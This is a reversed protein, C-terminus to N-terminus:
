NDSGFNSEMLFAMERSTTDAIAIIEAGTNNGSGGGIYVILGAALAKHIMGTLKAKAGDRDSIWSLYTFEKNLQQDSIMHTYANLSYGGEDGTIPWKRHLTNKLVRAYTDKPTEGLKTPSVQIVKFAGAVVQNKAILSQSYASFSQLAPNTAKALKGLTHAHAQTALVLLALLLSTKKM